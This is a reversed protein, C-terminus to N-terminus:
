FRSGISLQYVTFYPTNNANFNVVSVGVGGKVFLKNEFDYRLGASAGYTFEVMTKTTEYIGCTYGYWPDYYCSEYGGGDKVGTDVFSMGVNGSIYPTFPGDIINYTMGLTMASSYMNTSYAIDEGKENKTSVAYNGNSSSFIIDASVHNTFNFGVGFSWGSRDNLSVDVDNDFHLTKSAIYNPSFYIDFAQERDADALLQSTAALLLIVISPKM